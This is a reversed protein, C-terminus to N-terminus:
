SPCERILGVACAQVQADALPQLMHRFDIRRRLLRGNLFASYIKARGFLAVMPPTKTLFSGAKAKAPTAAAARAPVAMAAAGLLWTMVTGSGSPDTALTSYTPSMAGFTVIAGRGSASAAAGQAIANGDNAPNSRMM